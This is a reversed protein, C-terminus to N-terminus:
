KIKGVLAQGIDRLGAITASDTDYGVLTVVHRGKRFNLYYSSLMAEDGISLKEGSPSVKNQYVISAGEPSNMRYIEVSIQNDFENAFTQTVVEDFGNSHYLEAGGNILIFLDQGVFARVTDTPSWSTLEAQDPFLSALGPKDSKEACGFLTAVGVLVLLVFVRM